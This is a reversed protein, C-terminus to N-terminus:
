ARPEQRDAVTTCRATSSAGSNESPGAARPAEHDHLHRAATRAAAFLPRSRPTRVPSTTLGDSLLRASDPDDPLQAAVPLDLARGLNGARSPTSALVAAAIRHSPLDHQLTAVVPMATRLHRLTPRLGLLVLDCVQLLPWPTHPEWRGLDILVDAEGDGVDRAAYALRQWGDPAIAETQARRNVGALLRVHDLDPVQQVHGVLAEAPVADLHRTTTAFSVVNADSRLQGSVWWRGTWGALLDGGAPDADVVLVPRPWLTALAAVATSVGPSSKASLVGIVSM